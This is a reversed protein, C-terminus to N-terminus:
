LRLSPPLDPATERYRRAEHGLLKFLVFALVLDVSKGLLTGFFPVSTLPVWYYSTAILAVLIIPLFRGSRSLRYRPDFFMRIIARAEALAEWVLWARGARRDPPIPGPGAVAAALDTPARLLRKGFDLLVAAHADAPGAPKEQILRGAVREAVRSEMGQLDQLQALADELRRIRQELMGDGSSASAPPVREPAPPSGTGNKDELAFSPVPSLAAASEGVDPLAETPGSPDDFRESTGDPKKVSAEGAGHVPLGSTELM